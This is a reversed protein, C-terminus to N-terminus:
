RGSQSLAGADPEWASLEDRDCSEALQRFRNHFEERDVSVQQIWREGATPDFCRRAHLVRHNDFLAMEGPQLLHEFNNEPALIIEYLKRLARYAPEVQEVDLDPQSQTRDNVRIGRVVGDCDTAIVRARARFREQPNREAAFTLPVSSLFEFAEPASGRLTEAAAIGDVFVSVGGGSPNTRLCHMLSIGPPGHRWGEDTHPAIANSSTAGINAGTGQQDEPLSRIDFLTGFHTNRLPGVYRAISEVTGPRDPLNKVMAIGYDRLQLLLELRRQRHEFDSADFWPFAQAQGANWLRPRPHRQRRAKALLCNDRLFTLSHRTTSGDHAWDIILHGPEISISEIELSAPDEPLCFESDQRQEPRGMLPFFQEHRLWIYPFASHHADQWDILLRRQAQDFNVNGTAFHLNASM